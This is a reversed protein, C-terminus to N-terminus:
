QNQQTDFTYFTVTNERLDEVTQDIRQLEPPSTEEQEGSSPSPTYCVTLSVPINVPISCTRPYPAAPVPDQQITEDTEQLTEVAYPATM